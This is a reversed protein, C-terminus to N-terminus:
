PLRNWSVRFGYDLEKLWTAYEPDSVEFNKAAIPGITIRDAEEPTPARNGKTCQEMFDLQRKIVKALQWDPDVKLMDDTRKQADQLMFRWTLKSQIINPKVM